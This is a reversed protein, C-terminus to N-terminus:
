AATEAAIQAETVEKVWQAVDVFNVTLNLEKGDPDSGSIARWAHVDNPGRVHLEIDGRLTHWEIQLDGAAGPVIQPAPTEPGCISNLMQYAFNANVFSVPRGQYGDWGSALRILNQLRVTVEDNWRNGKEDNVKRSRNSAISVVNDTSTDRFIKGTFAATNQIETMQRAGM